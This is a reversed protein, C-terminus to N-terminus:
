SSWTPHRYERIFGDVWHILYVAGESPTLAGTGVTLSAM